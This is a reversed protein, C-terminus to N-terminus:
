SQFSFSMHTVADYYLVLLRAVALLPCVRARCAVAFLCRNRRHTMELGTAVPANPAIRLGCVKEAGLNRQVWFM